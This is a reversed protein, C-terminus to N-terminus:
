KKLENALIGISYIAAIGVLGYVIRSLVSMVGFIAAVLDFNLAGVLGWNLGGVIVLILAIVNLAKM